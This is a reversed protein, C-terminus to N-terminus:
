VCECESVWGYLWPPQLSDLRYAPVKVVLVESLYRDIDTIELGCGKVHDEFLDAFIGLNTHICGKKLFIKERKM